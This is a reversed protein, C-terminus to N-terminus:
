SVKRIRNAIDARHEKASKNIEMGYGLDFQIDYGQKALDIDRQGRVTADDVRGKYRLYNASLDGFAEEKPGSNWVNRQNLADLMAKREVQYTWDINEHAQTQSNLLDSEKGILGTKGLMGQLALQLMATPDGFTNWTYPTNRWNPTPQGTLDDDGPIDLDTTKPSGNLQGFTSSGIDAYSEPTFGFQPKLSVGRGKFNGPGKFPEGFGMGM